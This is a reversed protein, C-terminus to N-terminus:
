ITKKNKTGNNKEKTIKNKIDFREIAREHSREKPGAGGCMDCQVQWLPYTDDEIFQICILSTFSDGCFICNPAKVGCCCVQRPYEKKKM